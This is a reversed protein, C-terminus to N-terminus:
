EMDIRRRLTDLMEGNFLWYAAGSAVQNTYGLSHLARVAAATLSLVEGNYNVKGGEVVVATISESRSCTLVDGPKIGITELRLKPRRVRTNGPLTQAANDDGTEDPDDFEDLLTETPNTSDAPSPPIGDTALAPTEGTSGLGLDIRLRRENLTEGDFKWYSPGNVAGTTKFGFSVLIKSAAASLSTVTGDHKIKGNELVTATISDDLTFSLIDGPKIGITELRLKPRRSKGDEPIEPKEKDAKEPADAPPLATNASKDPASAMGRKTKEEELIEDARAESIGLYKACDALRMREISTIKGDELAKDVLLMFESEREHINSLSSEGIIRKVIVGAQNTTLGYIAGRTEMLYKQGDADIAGDEELIQRVELSFREKKQVIGKITQSVVELAMEMGSSLAEVWQSTSLSYLFAGSPKVDDIKLPIVLLEHQCALALEREIEKSSNASKSYVLVMVSSISLADVIENMFNGGPRVDKASIWCKVGRQTLGDYIQLAKDMDISSFSVFADHAM